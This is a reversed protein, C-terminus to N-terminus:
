AVELIGEPYMERNKGKEEDEVEEAAVSYSSSQLSRRSKCLDLDLDESTIAQGAEANCNKGDILVSYM